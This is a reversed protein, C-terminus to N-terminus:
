STLLRAQPQLREDCWSECPLCTRFHYPPNNICASDSDHEQFAHRKPLIPRHCSSTAYVQIPSVLRGFIKVAEVDWADEIDLLYSM